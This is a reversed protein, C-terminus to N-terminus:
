SMTKSKTAQGQTVVHSEQRQNLARRTQYDQKQTDSVHTEPQQLRSVSSPQYGRPQAARQTATSRANSVQSSHTDVCEADNHRMIQWTIKPQSLCIFGPQWGPKRSRFRLDVCKLWGHGILKRHGLHRWCDKSPVDQVHPSM